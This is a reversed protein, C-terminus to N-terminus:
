GVITDDVTAAVRAARRATRKEAVARDLTRRLKEWPTRDRGALRRIRRGLQRRTQSGQPTLIVAAAGILAGAAFVGLALVPGFERTETYSRGKPTTVPPQDSTELPPPDSASM